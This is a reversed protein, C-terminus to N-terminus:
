GLDAVFVWLVNIAHQEGVFECTVEVPRRRAQAIGRHGANAWTPQLSSAACRSLVPMFGARFRILFRRQIELDSRPQDLALDRLVVM